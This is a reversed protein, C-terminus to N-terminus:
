KASIAAQPEFALALKAATTEIANRAVGEELHAYQASQRVSSHNLIRSVVQLSFGERILHRLKLTDFRTFAYTRCGQANESELGPMTLISWPVATAIGQSCISAAM